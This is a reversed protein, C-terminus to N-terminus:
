AGLACVLAGDNEYVEVAELVEVVAEAVIGAVNQQLGDCWSETGCEPVVVGEGSEAAVLEDDETLIQGVTGLRQIDGLTEAIREVSGVHETILFV